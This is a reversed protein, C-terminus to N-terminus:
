NYFKLIIDKIDIIHMKRKRYDSFNDYYFGKESHMGNKIAVFSVYNLLKIENLELYDNKLIEDPYIFTVFLNLGRNDIKFLKKGNLEINCLIEESIKAQKQDLFYIIFDRSMLEQIKIFNIKLKNFFISHKKIKYYFKLKDYPKQTLGTAIALNFKGNDVYDGLIKDYLIFAEEIPDKDTKLYWAPNKLKKKDGVKSNFFYHHQIHAMGNFFINSFNPKKKYFFDLHIDNLLLDLFLAKRWKYKFGTIFFNLYTTYNKIRAFKTFIFAFSFLETMSFKLSSNKIVLKSITRHILKSWYNNDPKTITWPDPIFYKPMKLNNNLNMSSIIGVSLGLSELKNFITDGKYEIMDGLRFINHEQAKKGTYISPWQIWPELKKYENESKTYNIKDSIKRLNNLKKFKLYKELYDFNLENLSLFILSQKNM